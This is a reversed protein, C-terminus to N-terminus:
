LDDVATLNGIAAAIGPTVGTVSVSAAGNSAIWSVVAKAIARSHREFAENPDVDPNSGVAGFEAIIKQEILTKLASSTLPM